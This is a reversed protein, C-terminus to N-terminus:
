RGPLREVRVSDLVIDSVRRLRGAARLEPYRELARAGLTDPDATWNIWDQVRVGGVTRAGAAERMRTGGGNTHFAYAMLDVTGSDPHIWYLFRDQWDRGGGAREFTVELLEYATGNVTSRGLARPRAAADSLPAPLLAFYVVSNLAEAAALAAASDLPRNADFGGNGLRWREEGLSDTRVRTYAFHGGDREAAYRDGRFTFVLRAGDLTQTGHAAQARAVLARGREAEDPACAALLLLTALARPATM